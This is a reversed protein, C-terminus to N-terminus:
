TASPTGLKRTDLSKCHGSGVASGLSVLDRVVSDSALALKRGFLEAKPLAARSKVGLLRRAPLCLAVLLIWVTSVALVSLRTPERSRVHSM